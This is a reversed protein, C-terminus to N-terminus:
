RKQNTVALLAIHAAVNALNSNPDGKFKIAVDRTKVQFTSQSGGGSGYTTMSNNSRNPNYYVQNGNNAQGANQWGPM